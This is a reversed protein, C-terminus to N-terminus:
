ACRLTLGSSRGPRRALEESRSRKLPGHRGAEGRQEAAAEGQEGCSGGGGVCVLDAGTRGDDVARVVDAARRALVGGGPVAAVAVVVRVGLLDLVLRGVADLGTLRHARQDDLAAVVVHRQDGVVVVDRLVGQELAGGLEGAVQGAARQVLRVDRHRDGVVVGRRRVRREVPADPGELVREVEAEEVVVRALVGLRQLGGEVVQVVDPDARRGAVEVLELLVRHARPAGVVARGGPERAVVGVVVERDHPELVDVVRGVRPRERRQDVDALVGLEEVAIVEDGALERARHFPHDVARDAAHRDEGLVRGARALDLLLEGVRDALALREVVGLVVLHLPAGTLQGVRHDGVDAVDPRLAGVGVVRRAGPAAGGVM